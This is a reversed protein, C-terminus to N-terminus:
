IDLAAKSTAKTEEGARHHDHNGRPSVSRLLMLQISSFQGEKLSQM